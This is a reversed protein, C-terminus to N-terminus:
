GAPPRASPRPTGRRARFGRPTTTFGAQVLARVVVPHESQAELAAMGNIRTITLEPVRGRRVADTVAAAADALAAEQATLEDGGGAPPEGQDVGADPLPFTLLSHGGRELYLIPLGDRLM